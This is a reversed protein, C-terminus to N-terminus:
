LQKIGGGGDWQNRQSPPATWQCLLFQVRVWGEEEMPWQNNVGPVLGTVGDQLLQQPLQHVLLCPYEELIPSQGLGAKPM